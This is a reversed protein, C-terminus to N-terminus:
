HHGLFSAGNVTVSPVRIARLSNLFATWCPWLLRLPSDYEGGYTKGGLTALVGSASKKRMRSTDQRQLGHFLNHM